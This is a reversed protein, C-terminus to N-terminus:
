NAYCVRHREHYFFYELKQNCEVIFGNPLFIGNFIKFKVMQRLPYSLKSFKYTINIYLKLVLRTCM